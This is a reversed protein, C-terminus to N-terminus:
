SFAVFLKPIHGCKIHWYAIKLIGKSGYKIPTFNTSVREAENKFLPNFFFIANKMADRIRNEEEEEWPRFM